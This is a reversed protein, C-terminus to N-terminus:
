PLRGDREALVEAPGRGRAKRRAEGVIVVIGFVVAFALCILLGLQAAGIPATRTLVLATVGPPFM